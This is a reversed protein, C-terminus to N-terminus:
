ACKALLSDMGRKGLGGMKMFVNLMDGVRANHVGPTWYQWSQLQRIEVGRARRRAGQANIAAKRLSALSPM